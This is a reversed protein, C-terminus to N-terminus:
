RIKAGLKDTLVSTVQNHWPCVEEETLTRETSGYLCSITLGKYGSPIQKGKYYDAVMLSILHEINQKKIEEQIQAFTTEEKVIVSVDRSIGPFRALPLFAKQTNVCSLVKELYVEAIFAEKNKIGLAQRCGPKLRILEGIREEKLFAEVLNSSIIRLSFDGLGLRQFLTELIGKLHLFGASDKILGETSLITKSGCLAIGLSLSEQPYPTSSSFAKALEFIAVYDQRQNLNYAINTALSLSLNPRLVDQEQSLPNQIEVLNQAQALNCERLSDKAVLSYTIVENLGQGILINKINSILDRQTLGGAGLKLAPLTEPIKDYGYSRAIEEIIDIESRIDQRFNPVTVLFNKGKTLKVTFDLRNLIRKIESASINIGLAQQASLPSLLIIKKAAKAQGKAKAACFTGAALEQILKVATLAAPEVASADVSREFRYSSESQLGLRQRSRRTVIPNFVAAELLINKTKETVETDKGGMIGAIAVPKEQDAIVLIEPNLMREIGDISIIKENAKARRVSIAAANLKDLDFAHLPEGYTFLIYNTIDVINNISRCGILELREKLWKPSPGVKVGRIIKATYIPCDKKNEIHISLPTFSHAAHSLKKNKSQRSAVPSQRGLIAAVERAIGIVCLWDPRNSTVEIEFVFDGGKEELSTVELGALTLKQSLAEPKIKIDVFDKLWNYTFKM